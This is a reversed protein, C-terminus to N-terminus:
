VSKSITDALFALELALAEPFSAIDNAILAYPAELIKFITGIDLYMDILM